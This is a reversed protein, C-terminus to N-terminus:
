AVAATFFVGLDAAVLNMDFAMELEVRRSKTWWMDGVSITNGFAGAGELGTWTFTYGGSPEMLGPNPAAYVLLAAKGAVFAFADTQGEKSTTEIGNAILVRDIGLARAVLDPTAIATETYQIRSLLDPHDALIQWVQAGLVLTNPFYGTRAKVIYLQARLDKFPTSNTVNWQLFQNAGPAAGVGTQDGTWISTAFYKAVWQKDKRILAQQSLYNTADRNADLPDDYNAETQNDIDKHLAWVDAAYSQTTLRYGGGASETGPARIEMDARFFDGKNYVFFKNSQKAVGVVPFVKDAVFQDQTQMYGVSLNTLPADVHVDTITPNPM